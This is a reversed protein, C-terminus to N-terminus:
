SCHCLSTTVVSLPLSTILLELDNAEVALTLDARTGPPAQRWLLPSLLITWSDLGWGWVECDSGATHSLTNFRVWDVFVSLNEEPSSFVFGNLM